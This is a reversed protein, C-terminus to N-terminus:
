VKYGFGCSPEFDCLNYLQDSSIKLWPFVETGVASTNFNFFSSSLGGIYTNETYRFNEDTACDEDLVQNKPPLKFYLIEQGRPTHMIPCECGKSQSYPDLALESSSERRTMCFLEESSVPTKTQEEDCQGLWASLNIDQWCKAKTNTMHRMEKEKNKSEGEYTDPLNEEMDDQWHEEKKYTSIFSEVDINGKRSKELRAM